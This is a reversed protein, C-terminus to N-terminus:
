RGRDSRKKRAASPTEAEKSQTKSAATGSQYTDAPPLGTRTASSSTGGRRREDGSSNQNGAEADESECAGTFRGPPKKQEARAPAAATATDQSKGTGKKDASARLACAKQTSPDVAGDSPAKKRPDAGRTDNNSTKTSHDPQSTLDTDRASTKGTKQTTSRRGLVSGTAPETIDSERDGNEVLTEAAAPGRGTESSTKKDKPKRAGLEGAPLTGGDAEHESETDTEAELWNAM